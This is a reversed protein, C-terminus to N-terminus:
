VLSTADDPAFRRRMQDCLASVFRHLTAEALRDLMMRDAGARLVEDSPEYEARVTVQSVPPDLLLASIGITAHLHPFLLVRGAPVRWTVDLLCSTLGVPRFAAVEPDIQEAIAYDDVELGMAAALARAAEAAEATAPVLLALPDEALAQGLADFPADVYSYTRLPESM